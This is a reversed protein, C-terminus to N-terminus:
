LDSRLRRTAVRAKHVHESDGGLRIGPDQEVLAAVGAAISASIVERLRARRDLAAVVPDPPEEAKPGLVRFAKPHRSGETAGGERLRAGVAGLLGSPAGEAAEVEIERFRSSRGDAGMAVVWDDDVEAVARGAGDILRVRRRETEVTAVPELPAGRTM